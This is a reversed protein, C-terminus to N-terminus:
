GGVAVIAILGALALATPWKWLYRLAQEIRLRPYAAHIFLQLIFVVLMKVFLVFPDAAGGLFLTVFLAVGVFLNLAHQITALALLSGGYEVMPGSAIEQPAQTLDFPRIDLIAPLILFYAVGPLLLSLTFLAWGTGQQKEVIEVISITNYHTMVALLVFLLPVEYGLALLFKRSIGMSANPNAAEAGSLALGLPGFLMVYLIVLMGGSSSLPHICGLPLFWIVLISGALSLIMGGVFINGHSISGQHFLKLIDIVPQLLPPGCRWQIRATVKRSLGLFLIGIVFAILPSIIMQVIKIAM